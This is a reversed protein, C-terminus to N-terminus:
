VTSYDSRVSTAGYGFKTRVASAIFTVASALALIGFAGAAKYCSAAGEDFNGHYGLFPNHNSLASAFVVM